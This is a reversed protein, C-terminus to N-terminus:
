SAGFGSTVSKADFRSSKKEGMRFKVQNYLNRSVILPSYHKESFALPSIGGTDKVDM